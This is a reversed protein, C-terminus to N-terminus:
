LRVRGRIHGCMRTPIDGLPLEDGGDPDATITYWENPYDVDADGRIFVRVTM